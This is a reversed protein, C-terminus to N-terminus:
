RFGLGSSQVLPKVLSPSGSGALGQVPPGLSHVQGVASGSGSLGSFSQKGKLRNTASFRAVSELSVLCCSVPSVLFFLCLQHGKQM